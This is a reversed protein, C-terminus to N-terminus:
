KVKLVRRWCWMEFSHIRRKADNKMIWTEAGYTAVSWILTKLLKKRTELDLDASLLERKELFKKKALEIRTKTDEITQGHYAWGVCAVCM